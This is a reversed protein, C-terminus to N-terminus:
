EESTAILAGLRDISSDGSRTVGQHNGVQALRTAGLSLPTEVREVVSATVTRFAGGSRRRHLGRPRDPGVADVLM